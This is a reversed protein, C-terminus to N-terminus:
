TPQHAFWVSFSPLFSPLFFSLFFSFFYYYDPHMHSLGRPVVNKPERTYPWGLLLPLWLLPFSAPLASLSSPLPIFPFFSLSPLLSPFPRSSSSFSPPAVLLLLLLHEARGVSRGISPLFSPAEDPISIGISSPRGRLM